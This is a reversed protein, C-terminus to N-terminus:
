MKNFNRIIQLTKDDRAGNYFKELVMQFIPHIGLSDFLTMSSKLKFDDPSGFIINANNSELTLLENCIRILREGLVPHKLYAEAEHINKIAYFKSTESLGLGSIQPFIYWMWHSQKKGNKIEALATHYSTEQAAIFRQLNSEEHMHTM